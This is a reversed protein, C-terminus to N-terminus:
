KFKCTKSFSKVLYSEVTKNTTHSIELMLAVDPILYDWRIGLFWVMMQFWYVIGLQLYHQRLTWPILYYYM